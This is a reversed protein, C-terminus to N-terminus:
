RCTRVKGHDLRLVVSMDTSERSRLEFNGVHGYEGMIPERSIVLYMM